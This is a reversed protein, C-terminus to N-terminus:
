FSAIKLIPFSITSVSVLKTNSMGHNCFLQLNNVYWKSWIHRNKKGSICSHEYYMSISFFTSFYQKSTDSCKPFYTKICGFDVRQFIELSWFTNLTVTCLHFLHTSIFLCCNSCKCFHHLWLSVFLDNVYVHVSFNFKLM